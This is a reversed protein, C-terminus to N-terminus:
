KKRWKFIAILRIITIRKYHLVINKNKESFGTKHGSIHVCRVMDLPGLFTGHQEDNVWLVVEMRSAGKGDGGSIPIGGTDSIEDPPFYVLDIFDNHCQVRVLADMNRVAEEPQVGRASMRLREGDDGGSLDLKSLPTCGNGLILVNREIVRALELLPSSELDANPRLV